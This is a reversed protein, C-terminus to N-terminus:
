SYEYHFIPFANRRKPARKLVDKTVCVNVRDTVRM